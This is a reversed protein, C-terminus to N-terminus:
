NEGRRGAVLGDLDSAPTRREVVTKQRDRDVEEGKRERTEEEKNVADQHMSRVGRRNKEHLTALPQRLEGAFAPAVVVERRELFRLM